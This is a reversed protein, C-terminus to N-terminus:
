AKNCKLTSRSRTRRKSERQESRREDEQRGTILQEQRLELESKPVNFQSPSISGEFENSYIPRQANLKFRLKTQFPGSQHVGMLTWAKGSKLQVDFSSNGCSSSPLPEIPRWLGQEDRAQAVIYLHQDCSPLSFASGTRNSLLVPFFYHPLDPSRQEPFAILSVQGDPASDAANVANRAWYIGFKLDLADAALVLAPLSILAM